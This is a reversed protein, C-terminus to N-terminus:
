PYLPTTPQNIPTATPTPTVVSPTMSGDTATPTQSVGPTVAVATLEYELTSVFDSLPSPVMVVDVANKMIDSVAQQDPLFVQVETNGPLQWINIAQWGIIFYKIRESDALKLALPVYELLEDLALDTLIWDKYSAYILQLKSLNGGRTFKLFILRLLQQQRQMRDVEDNGSLYTAYCLAKEGNMGQPGAALGGCANPMPYLVSVEIGGADYVLWQFEEPHALVFRDVQVGLNYALTQKLLAMGGISYATSIRQMTYGPIYVYLSGPISVLSAKALRPNIFLLHIAPTLGSFPAESDMGLLVWVLVEGPVDLAAMVPPIETPPNIKPGAYTGWIPHNIGSPTNLIVAPTPTRSPTLAVQQSRSTSTSNLLPAQTAQNRMCGSLILALM